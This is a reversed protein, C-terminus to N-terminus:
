PYGRQNEPREAVSVSFRYVPFVHRRACVVTHAIEPNVNPTSQGRVDNNKTLLIREKITIGMGMGM